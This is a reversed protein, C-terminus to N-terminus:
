SCKGSAPSMDRPFIWHQEPPSKLHRNFVVHYKGDSRPGQDVKGYGGLNWEVCNGMQPIYGEKDEEADALAREIAGAKAGSPQVPTTQEALYTWGQKGLGPTDSATALWTTDHRFFYAWAVLGFLDRGTDEGGFAQEWSERLGQEELVTQYLDNARLGKEDPDPHRDIVRDLAALADCMLDAKSEQARAYVYPKFEATQPVM